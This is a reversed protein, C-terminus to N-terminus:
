IWACIIRYTESLLLESPQRNRQARTGGVTPIVLSYRVLRRSLIAPGDRVLSVPAASEM